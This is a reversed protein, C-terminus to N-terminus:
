KTKPKFFQLPLVLFQARTVTGTHGDLYAIVAKGTGIVVTEASAGTEAVDTGHWFGFENPEGTTPGDPTSFGYTGDTGGWQCGGRTDSIQPRLSHSTIQNLKYAIKTGYERSFRYNLGTTPGVNGNNTYSGLKREKMSCLSLRNLENQTKVYGLRLFAIQMSGIVVHEAGAVVDDNDSSYLMAVQSLQKKRSVCDAEKAKLRANNLAPLLIGALIAIIAIVVLLEILTFNRCVEYRKKM